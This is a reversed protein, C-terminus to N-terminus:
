KKLIIKRVFIDSDCAAPAETGCRGCDNGLNGVKGCSACDWLEGEAWAYNLTTMMFCLMVCILAMKKM